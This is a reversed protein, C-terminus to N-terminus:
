NNVAQEIPVGREVCLFSGQIGAGKLFKNMKNMAEQQTRGKFNHSTQKWESGNVSQTWWMMYTKFKGM